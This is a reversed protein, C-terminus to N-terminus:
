ARVARKRGPKPGEQAPKQATAKKASPSPALMAQEAQELLDTPAPAKEEQMSMPMSLPIEQPPPTQQQQQQRKGRKNPVFEEQTGDFADVFDILANKQEPTLSLPLRLLAKGVKYTGFQKPKGRKGGQGPTRPLKSEEIKRDWAAKMDESMAVIVQGLSRSYKSSIDVKSMGKEYDSRMDQYERLGIAGRKTNNNSEM